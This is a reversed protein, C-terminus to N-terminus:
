EDGPIMMLRQGLLFILRKTSEAPQNKFIQMFPIENCILRRTLLILNPNDM